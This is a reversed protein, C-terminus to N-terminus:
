FQKQYHNTGIPKESRYNWYSKRTPDIKLDLFRYGFMRSILGLPTVVVYFLVTLIVRTMIWGLITTFTMWAFYLPKLINPILVGSFLLLISIILIPNVGTKNKWLFYLGLVLGLGGLSLGFKRFETKSNKINKIEEIM